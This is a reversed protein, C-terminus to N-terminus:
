KYIDIWIKTMKIEKHSNCSIEFGPINEELDSLIM